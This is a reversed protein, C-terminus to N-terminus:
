NRNSAQQESKPQEREVTDNPQIFREAERGLLKTRDEPGLGLVEEAEARFRQQEEGRDGELMWQAAEKYNALADDQQGHQWYAMALFFQHEPDKGGRMQRAKELAEIAENWRENRYLAVGLNDWTNPDDPALDVAARAAELALEPDRNAPNPSTAAQWSQRTYVTVLNEMTDKTEPHDPGLTRTRIELVQEFLRRAEANEHLMALTEALGGMRRVTSPHKPGLVSQSRSVVEEYLKRAATLEGTMALMAGLKEMAELTVDHHEPGLVRRSREVVKELERRAGAREGLRYRTCALYMRAQLTNVHDPGFVSEFGALARELSQRAVAEQGMRHQTSGLNGLAILTLRHESGLARQCFEVVREQLDCAEALEGSESLSSALDISAQLTQPHGRGLVRRCAEVVHERLEHASANDGLRELTNALRRETGLTEPDDLGLTRQKIQLVRQFLDRAKEVDGSDILACAVNEQAALTDPLEPGLYQLCWQLAEETLKRAAPLKGSDELALGFNGLTVMLAKDDPPLVRRQIPLVGEYIDIAATYDGQRALCLAVHSAANLTARHEPGLQQEYLEYAKECQQLAADDMRMDLFVGALTFRVNAELLPQDSFVQELKREANQLVELLTMKQALELDGRASGLVDHVLFNTVAQAEKRKRTALAEQKEARIQAQQAEQKAQWVLATSVGLTLTVLLSAVLSALMLGPHRRVWKGIRNTFTPPRAHIPRGALFCRLDEALEGASAYREDAERSMAKGVITDLERPIARDIQWLPPPTVEAIQRLLEPRQGADFPPRLTLLEYLTAGLSYVDTREDVFRGEAQEPSMYRLTGVVDGTATTHPDAQIRALGFDTITVKGEGDLMLNSPKVDRHLIGHAHAYELAEAAQVGLRAAGRYFDSGGSTPSTSIAGNAIRLTDAAQPTMNEARQPNTGSIDGRIVGDRKPSVQGVAPATQEADTRGRLDRIVEALSQGEVLRMAYYHVGRDCGVSYVSVIGPHELTAAARAENQFRQLQRRDLIAAFPLVKLAVRRPLSIQEAEYVVGMGGQGIPRLLRFDGLVGAVPHEDEVPIDAAAAAPWMARLLEVCRLEEALDTEDQAPGSQPAKAASRDGRALLEDYALLRATSADEKRERDDDFTEPSTM